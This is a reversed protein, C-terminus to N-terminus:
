RVHENRLDRIVARGARDVIADVVLDVGPSMARQQIGAATRRQVFYSEIGYRVTIEGEAGGMGSGPRNGSTRSRGLHDQVVGRLFVAGDDPADLSWRDAVWYRGAQRLSVYVTDGRRVATAGVAHRNPRMQYWGLTSFSYRLDVYEGRFPDWPDVPEVRLLIHQGTWVTIQKLGMLSVLMMLQLLVVAYFRTKSPRM